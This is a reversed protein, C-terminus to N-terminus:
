QGRTKKAGRLERIDADHDTLIRQIGRLVEEMIGIARSNEIHGEKLETINSILFNVLRNFIYIITGIGVVSICFWLYEPIATQLKEPDIMESISSTLIEM